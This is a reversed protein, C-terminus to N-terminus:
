LFRPQTLRRNDQWHWGRDWWKIKTFTFVVPKDGSTQSVYQSGSLILTIEDTALTTEQADDKLSWKEELPVAITHAVIDDEDGDGVALYTEALGNFCCLANRKHLAKLVRRRFVVLTLFIIIGQLCNSLDTIVRFNSYTKNLRQITSLLKSHKLILVIYKDLDM